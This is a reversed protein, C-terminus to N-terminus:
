NNIQKKTLVIDYNTIVSHLPMEGNRWFQKSKILHGDINREDSGVFVSERVWEGAICVFYNLQSGKSVANLWEYKDQTGSKNYAWKKEDRKNRMTHQRRVKHSQTNFCRWKM